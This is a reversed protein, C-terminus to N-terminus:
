KGSVLAPFMAHTGDRGHMGGYLADGTHWDLATMDRIGTAYHEGEAFKQGPKADDFSWVGARTSLLPCPTLGVPKAGKPVQPDVCVNANAGLSVYMRGAGDFALGHGGPPVSEVIVEPEATPVLAEGNFPFRYVATPSAAYLLGKYMRIGTGGDVTGFHETQAAKGDAGPRLAVIGAPVGKIRRMSVYVDGNERVTIHRAAGLGEAFVTTHFGRPLKLGDPEQATIPGTLLSLTLAAFVFNKM